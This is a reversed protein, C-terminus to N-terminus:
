GRPGLCHGSFTATKTGEWRFIGAPEEKTVINGAKAKTPAARETLVTQEGRSVGTGRQHGAGHGRGPFWAEPGPDTGLAQEHQGTEPSIGSGHPKDRQM